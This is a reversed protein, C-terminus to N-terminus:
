RPHPRWLDSESVVPLVRKAGSVVAVLPNKVPVVPCGTAANVQAAMNPLLSGGGTLHIGQQHVAYRDPATLDEILTVATESIRRVLPQLEERILGVPIDVELFQGTYPHTGRVTRFRLLPLGGQEPFPSAVGVEETIKRADASSVVVGYRARFFVRLKEHLDACAVRVANSCRIRGSRILACDTVGEGIDMLLIPRDEILDLGAGIAAALPEPMLAVAGAGARYCSERVATREEPTTDSPACALARPLLIGMRRLRAIAPRLVEGAVDADVVVGARLAPTFGCVSPTEVTMSRHAFAIRTTATGLDVAVDPPQWPPLIRFHFM